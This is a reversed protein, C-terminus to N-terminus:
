TPQVRTELHEFVARTAPPKRFLCQAAKAWSLLCYGRSNEGSINFHAWSEISFGCLSCLRWRLFLYLDWFSIFIRKSETVTRPSGFRSFLCIIENILDGLLLRRLGNLLASYINFKHGKQSHLQEVILLFLSEWIYISKKKNKQNYHLECRGTKYIIVTCYLSLKQTLATLNPTSSTIHDGSHGQAPCQGRTVGARCAERANSCKLDFAEALPWSVAWVPASAQKCWCLV